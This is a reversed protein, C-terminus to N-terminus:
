DRNGYTERIWDGDNLWWLSIIVVSDQLRSNVSDQLWHQCYPLLLCVDSLGGHDSLGDDRDRVLHVILHGFRGFGLRRLGLRRFECSVGVLFEVATLKVTAPRQPVHISDHFLTLRAKPLGRLTSPRDEIALLGSYASEVHELTCRGCLQDLTLKKGADIEDM